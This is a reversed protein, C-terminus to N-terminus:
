KRVNPNSNPKPTTNGQKGIDKQPTSQQGKQQGQNQNLQDKNMKDNGMFFEKNFEGELPPSILKRGHFLETM